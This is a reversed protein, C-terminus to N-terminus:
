PPNPEPFLKQLRLALLAAITMTCAALGLVAQPGFAQVVRGAIMAGLGIGAAM